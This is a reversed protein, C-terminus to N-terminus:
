QMVQKVIGEGAVAERLLLSDAEELGTAPIYPIDGGSSVLDPLVPDAIDDGVDSVLVDM